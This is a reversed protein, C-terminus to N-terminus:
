TLKIRRIVVSAPPHVRVVRHLPNDTSIRDQHAHAPPSSPTTLRSREGPIHASGSGLGVDKSPVNFRAWTATTIGVLPKVARLRRRRGRGSIM